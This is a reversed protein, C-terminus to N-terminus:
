NKGNKRVCSVREIVVWMLGLKKVVINKLREIVRIEVLVVM